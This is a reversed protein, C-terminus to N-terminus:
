ITGKTVGWESAQATRGTAGAYRKYPICRQHELVQNLYKQAVTINMGKLVRATNYTNKFHVRVDDGCTKVAEKVVTIGREPISPDRSYKKPMEKINFRVKFRFALLRM